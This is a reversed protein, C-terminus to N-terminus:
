SPAVCVIGPSPKVHMVVKNAVQFLLVMSMYISSPYDWANGLLKCWANERRTPPAQNCFWLYSDNDTVWHMFVILYLNLFIKKSDNSSYNGLGINGAESYGTKETEHTVGLAHFRVSRLM